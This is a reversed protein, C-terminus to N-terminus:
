PTHAATLSWCTSRLMNDVVEKLLLVSRQLDLTLHTSPRNNMRLLHPNMQFLKIKNQICGMHHKFVDVHMSAPFAHHLLTEAATRDILYAAACTSAVSPRCRCTLLQHDALNYVVNWESSHMYFNDILKVVFNTVNDRRLVNVIQTFMDAAHPLVVADEELVLAVDFHAAVHRWIRAHNMYINVSANNSLESATELLRPQLIKKRAQPAVSALEAETFSPAVFPSCKKASPDINSENLTLVFCPVGFDTLNESNVRLVSWHSRGLVSAIASIVTFVCAVLAILMRHKLTM